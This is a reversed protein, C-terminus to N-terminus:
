AESLLTAGFGFAVDVASGTPLGGVGLADEGLLGFTVAVVWAVVVAATLVDAGAAAVRLAAGAFPTRALQQLPFASFPVGADLAVAVKWTSVLPLVEVMTM